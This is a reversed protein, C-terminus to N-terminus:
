WCGCGTMGIGPVAFRYPEEGIPAHRQGQEVNYPRGLRLGFGSGCHQVAGARKGCRCRHSRYQASLKRPVECDQARASATTSEKRLRKVPAATARADQLVDEAAVGAVELVMLM